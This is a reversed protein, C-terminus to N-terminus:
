KSLSLRSRTDFLPSSLCTCLLLWLCMTVNLQVPWLYKLTCHSVLCSRIVSKMTQAAAFRVGDQEAHLLSSLASVGGPLLTAALGSDLYNLRCNEFVFRNLDTSRHTALPSLCM